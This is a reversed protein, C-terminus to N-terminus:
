ENLVADNKNEVFQYFLLPEMNGGCHCQVSVTRKEDKCRDCIKVESGPFFSQGYIIQFFYSLCFIISSLLISYLFSHSFNNRFVIFLGIFSLISIGSPMIVSFSSDKYREQISFIELDAKREWQGNKKQRYGLVRDLINLM